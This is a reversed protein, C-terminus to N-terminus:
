VLVVTGGPQYDRPWQLKALAVTGHHPISVSQLSDHFSKVLWKKEFNRNTEQIRFVSVGKERMTDSFDQLDTSDPRSSLGNVNHCLVRFLDDREVDRGPALVDGWHISNEPSPIFDSPEKSSGQEHPRCMSGRGYEFLKKQRLQREKNEEAGQVGTGLHPAEARTSGITALM